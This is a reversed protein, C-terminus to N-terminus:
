DTRSAPLQKSGDFYFYRPTCKGFVHIVCEKSVGVTYPMAPSQKRLNVGM